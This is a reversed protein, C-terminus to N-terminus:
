IFLSIEKKKKQNQKEEQWYKVTTNYATIILVFTSLV